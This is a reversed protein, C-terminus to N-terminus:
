DCSDYWVPKNDWKYAYEYDNIKIYDTGDSFENIRKTIISTDNPLNPIVTGAQNYGDNTAFKNTFEQLKVSKKSPTFGIVKYFTVLSCNYGFKSVVIDNVQLSM